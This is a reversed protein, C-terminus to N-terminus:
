SKAQMPPKTSRRRPFINITVSTRKVEEKSQMLRRVLALSKVFTFAVTAVMLITSVALIVIVGPLVLSGITYVDM